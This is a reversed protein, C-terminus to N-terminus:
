CGPLDINASGNFSVGGITRATALISATAALGSTNQNGTTNVGPLNINSSGNFSVGGITRATALITATAANGTVDGTLDAYIVGNTKIDTNGSNTISGDTNASWYDADERSDVYAKISQQTALATASNSAMNDEDLINTVTVSGTGKFSNLTKTGTLTQAGGLVVIDSNTISAIKTATAANGSTDQNGSTNVGPLDINASGNFSVGGINRATALITATAALGSTNQNGATNVGPLDINASGDFSVGGITRATALITTTAANGSTNQNGATNVGPLDINASGNFSVGGINRATALITATDANGELAGDFKTAEIEGTVILKDASQDWLMYQGATDGFFKVDHGTGNVGVTFDNSLTIAVNSTAGRSTVTQLTDSESPVSADVYAKISQQTALATASNSAMNDEDLINTVTVSGTGKFSNLTKTGTLTQAGGLQVINSNTISAIKTSTDANGSTDQNGSTNVGPLDINASGDFSVGGINRATALTTADAALTATDANGTTNQNGTTNVGPLDINASGNFSVGGINRATALITATAAVGSTDQNGATNVGPLNINASGNFSVGGITRTTALITATDANGTVDGTLDGTVNSVTLLGAQTLTMSTAMSGGSGNGFRWLWNGTTDSTNSDWQDFRTTMTGSTEDQRHVLHANRDETYVGWYETAARGVKLQPQTTQVAANTYVELGVSEDTHVIKLKAESTDWQMYEGSDDGFFKVDYGTDDVGVTVTGNSTLGATTISNTTTAGNDTVEQLTDSAGVQSTVYARISQQTALATDSNSAMNDEDLINTVTVSGTGKFSNLTKTGTLTQAGGLQVIDSNTISAIKTSTAANGSTDQNGDTNVGPLNINASGNFSVGGINRATALITATAALGSTNQNGATNVGPLDINASGDFSVGGINRATALTTADAALTATDANGTTNQNGATNVGPLNINASGDFSVGGITRATALITATAANGSTNQNGATNVGPLNINSSGNFSVGGITRATALITATSANGTVDGTLDGTITGGVDLTGAMQTNGSLKVDTGGSTSISGDTNASWLSTGGVQVDVYAKISQQTALATASNSAMNDEDLINTVTVAGTGKFSNFTKTGTLTQAGGLQVIDSNTISAIKTATSANGSTDQNGTANVGPLDINASGNFSVGGINRATALITATAAVGSTNQNGATNVGPLNINTSGDFSVGGITRATELITAEAATGSTDQNGATNVGPLNINGSGNFSVGGINRATELITATDANGTVNGTLDGTITGVVNLTGAMQTNGSIKVNTVGSTSISGDTNASWYDADERSDVYAKISQQTALATASNSAMNDEDLINTVTVSGTGKFSNLTKTGTLTQAGALQVINSNTISAIKTSTAANGSTDQNGDTNVGPLDINASGNFSVGGIDRATALITATAANGSTDQNGTANVGPLDINASGNFSVGGITRANELITAEAATGSTDQNGATNVGPLNINSSGDFAVGGITKTAALKTATSANGTVDGVFGGIATVSGSGSVSGGFFTKGTIGLNEGLYISNSTTNGNDTVEQLTDATGVQALVYAKISQQTALATASDSAMNDEDLINTVTVSGTGKFSNLTKTGTLTQAGGLVVIDTNTISAIKTSTAANGSTDQNGTTNVGPLDINASGDFSVGGITRATALTTADAALTATAANGSTNQNGATNVGPLNINQSGDFSVGGINRATALITATSANGTLNGSIGSAAAVRPVTLLGGSPQYTFTGTDDLLGYNSNHFVVPLAISGANDTVTVTSALTATAANGSTDQNGDTNVGPLNINASGNFSVGGINRATELITAEAATGSTDQNGATNVGPLNINSSGNFSVGGINRATALITATAANGSTNQNGATNVGPLNINSSGNFSVGGITRATELITATDANGTVDGTLDGTITGVVNLTGAMQTNGSLKVNTVGSTSISGDTNASWYDADERSDVYAKVSQQTVLATASNSAMNDEDLINTVTVSGTGKFSNLTKTGTLTQAGGLQVIDSNTISAIKTSTAANGSTDQNGATNVGPLDINASGDFSVGGITRATALITATAALGSTNQNGATNVGPLNINTSGNFSVGGITRATALVTATSANGTVEGTLNGTITGDIDANGSIDLTAGTLKGSAKVDGTVELTSASIAGSASKSKYVVGDDDIVLVYGRGAQVTELKVPDDSTSNGKVHLKHTPTNSGIGVKTTTLGSNSISGDTNGSWYDADGIDQKLEATTLYEIQGTSQAVLIKNESYGAGAADVNGVFVNGSSTITVASVTPSLVSTSASVTGSVTLKENPTITGIGVYADDGVLRMIETNTGAGNTTFITDGSQSGGARILIDGNTKANQFIMDNATNMKINAFETGSTNEFKISNNNPLVIDADWMNLDGAIYNEGGGSIALNGGITTDGTVVLSTTTTTTSSVTAGVVNSSASLTVGSILPSLVSTSASISGVVTLNDNITTATQLNISLGIIDTHPVTGTTNGVQLHNGDRWLYKTGNLNYGSTSTTSNYSTARITGTTIIDTNGSNTISGDTNASWYVDPNTIASSAFIDLLNTTGSFYNGSATIDDTSTIQEATITGSATITTSSLTNASAASFFWNSTTASQADGFYFAGSSVNIALEGRSLSSPQGSTGSKIKIIQSM